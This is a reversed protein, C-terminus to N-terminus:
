VCSENDRRLTGFGGHARQFARSAHVCYLCAGRDPSNLAPCRTRRESRTIYIVDLQVTGRGDRFVGSGDGRRQAQLRLAIPNRFGGQPWTDQNPFCRDYSDFGVDLRCAHDGAPGPPM